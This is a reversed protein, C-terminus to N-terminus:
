WGGQEPVTWQTGPADAPRIETFLKLTVPRLRQWAESPWRLSVSPFVTELVIKLYARGSHGVPVETCLGSVAASTERRGLRLRANGLVQNRAKEAELDVSEYFLVPAEDERLWSPCVPLPLQLTFGTLLGVPSLYFSGHFCPLEHLLRPGKSTTMSLTGGSADMAIRWASPDTYSADPVFVM